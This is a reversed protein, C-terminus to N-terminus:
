RSESDGRSGHTPGDPVPGLTTIAKRLFWKSSNAGYFNDPLDLSSDKAALAAQWAQHAAEQKRDTCSATNWSAPQAHLCEGLRGSQPGGAQRVDRSSCLTSLNQEIDLPSTRPSLPSSCRRTRRPGPEGGVVQCPAHGPRDQRHWRRGAGARPWQPRWRHTKEPHSAPVRAMACTPANLIATMTEDDSSWLLGRNRSPRPWRQQSTRPTSSRTWGRRAPM